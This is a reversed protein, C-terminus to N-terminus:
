CSSGWPLHSRGPTDPWKRKKPPLPNERTTMEYGGERKLKITVIRVTHISKGDNNNRQELYASLQGVVAAKIPLRLTGEHPSIKLVENWRSAGGPVITGRSTHMNLMSLSTPPIPGASAPGSSELFSRTCTDPYRDSSRPPLPLYMLQYTSVQM